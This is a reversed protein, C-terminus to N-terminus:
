WKRNYTAQGAILDRWHIKTKGFISNRLEELTRGEKRGEKWGEKNIINIPINEKNM